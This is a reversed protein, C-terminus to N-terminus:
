VWLWKTRLRVSLCRILCALKALHNITRKRVLHNHTRTWNCDSLCGEDKMNDYAISLGFSSRIWVNKKHIAADTALAVATSRFPILVNYALPKLVNKM